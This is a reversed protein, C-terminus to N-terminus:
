AESFQINAISRFPTRIFLTDLDLCERKELFRFITEAVEKKQM